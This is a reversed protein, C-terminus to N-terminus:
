KHPPQLHLYWMFIELTRTWVYSFRIHKTRIQALSLLLGYKNPTSHSHLCTITKFERAFCLNFFFVVQKPYANWVERLNYFWPKQFPSDLCFFWLTMPWLPSLFRDEQSKRGKIAGRQKYFLVVLIHDFTQGVKYHMTWPCFYQANIM